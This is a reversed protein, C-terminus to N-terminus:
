RYQYIVTYAVKSAVSALGSLVDTDALLMKLESLPFPFTEGAAISQEKLIYNKDDVSEAGPRIRLTVTIASSDTNTLLIGTVAAGAANSVTLLAADSTSLLGNAINAM